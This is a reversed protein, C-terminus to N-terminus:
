LSTHYQTCAHSTTLTITMKRCCDSISIYVSTKFRKVSKSLLDLRFSPKTLVRGCTNCTCTYIYFTFAREREAERGGGGDGLYNHNTVLTSTLSTNQLHNSIRPDKRSTASLHHGSTWDHDGERLSWLM